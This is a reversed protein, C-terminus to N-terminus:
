EGAEWYAERYRDPPAVHARELAERYLDRAAPDSEQGMLHHLTARRESQQREAEKMYRYDKAAEKAGMQQNYQKMVARVEGAKRLEMREAGAPTKATSKGPFSFSGDALRFIVVADKMHSHYGRDAQWLIQAWQKCEPCRKRGVGSKVTAEFQHGADCEFSQRVVM